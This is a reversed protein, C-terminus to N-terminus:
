AMQLNIFEPKNAVHRLLISGASLNQLKCHIKVCKNVNIKLFYINKTCLLSDLAKM